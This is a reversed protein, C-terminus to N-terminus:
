SLDVLQELPPPAMPSLWARLLLQRERDTIITTESAEADAVTLLWTGSNRQQYFTMVSSRRVFLHLTVKRDRSKAKRHLVGGPVLLWHDTAFWGTRAPVFLLALFGAVVLLLFWTVAHRQVAEILAIVIGITLICLWLWGGKLRINRRVRRMELVDEHWGPMEPSNASSPKPDCATALALEDFGVDAEDLLRPEFTIQLPEVPDPEAKWWLQFTTGVRGIKGMARTIVSIPQLRLPRDLFLETAALINAQPASDRSLIVGASRESRRLIFKNRAAQMLMILLMLILAAPGTPLKFVDRLVALGVGIVMGQGLAFIMGLMLSPKEMRMNTFGPTSTTTESDNTM